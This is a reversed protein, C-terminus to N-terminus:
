RSLSPNGIIYFYIYESKPVHLGRYHKEKRCNCKIDTLLQQVLHSEKVLEALTEIAAYSISQRHLTYM